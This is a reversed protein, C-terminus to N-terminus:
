NAEKLINACLENVDMGTSKAVQELVYEYTSVKDRLEVVERQYDDRTRNMRVGERHKAAQVRGRYTAWLAKWMGTQYTVSHGSRLQHELEDLVFVQRRANDVYLCSMELATLKRLPSDPSRKLIELLPQVFELATPLGNRELVNITEISDYGNAEAIQTILAGLRMDISAIETAITRKTEVIASVVPPETQNTPITSM